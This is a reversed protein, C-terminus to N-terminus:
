KLKQKPAHNDLIDILGNNYLSIQENPNSKNKSKINVDAIEKKIQKMDLNKLKRHTIYKVPHPTKQIDM